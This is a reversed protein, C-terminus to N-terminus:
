SWQFLGGPRGSVAMARDASEAGFTSRTRDVFALMSKVSWM